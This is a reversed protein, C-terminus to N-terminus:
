AELRRNTDNRFTQDVTTLAIQDEIEVNVLHDTVRLPPLTQDDPALLGAADAARPGALSALFGAMSVILTTLHLRMITRRFLCRREVSLSSLAAPGLNRGSPEM